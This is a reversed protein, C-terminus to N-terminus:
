RRIRTSRRETRGARSPDRLPSAISRGVRRRYKGRPRHARRDCGLPWRRRLRQPPRLLLDHRRQGDCVRRTWRARREPLVVLGRRGCGVANGNAAFMDVGQHTHGNRPEGFSSTFSVSGQVPCVWDGSVIVRPADDSTVPSSGSSSDSSSDSSSRAAAAWAERLRSAYEDARRERELRGRLEQEAQRAEDLAHQLTEQESRVNDLATQADALQSRLSAEHAISIRLRRAFDLSCSMTTCTRLRVSRREGRRMSCTTETSCKSGPKVAACTSRSRETPWAARSRRKRQECRRLAAARSSRTTNCRTTARRRRTTCPPRPTPPKRRPRSGLRHMTSRTARPRRAPRRSPSRWRRSSVSSPQAAFGPLGVPSICAPVTGRCDRQGASAKRVGGRLPCQRLRARQEHARAPTQSEDIEYHPFRRPSSRWASGDKSAPSRRASASTCATASASRSTRRANSTSGTPTRTSASTATRPGPSCCCARARRCRRRRARDRRRHARPGPVAVAGLLAADGRGRGPDEGSRRAGEAVGDPQPPVAGGRQRAAQHADRHRGLRDAVRVRDGRPRHATDCHRRRRRDRSRVAELHLRRRPARAQGVLLTGLVRRCQAMAEIAHDPIYPPEELRDLTADMWHRLQNRDAAPVGLLEM